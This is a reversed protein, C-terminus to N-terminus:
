SAELKADNNLIAPISGSNSFPARRRDPDNDSGLLRHLEVKFGLEPVFLGGLKIVSVSNTLLM